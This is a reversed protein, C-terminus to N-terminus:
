AYRLLEDVLRSAGLRFVKPTVGNKGLIREALILYEAAQEVSKIGGSIKVGKQDNMAKAVLLMVAAAELTAGAPIKGTSTKIFDAGALFADRSADAIVNLDLLAGTELIVKLVITKGCAAKCARIFDCAFDRDGALYRRYPFVLDIEKAGDQIAQNIEILVSELADTGHPFNVVAAIKISSSAAVFRLFKPYVCIAAVDGLPNHAKSLFPILSSETDTDNLSTLDILRMIKQPDIEGVKIPFYAQIADHWQM